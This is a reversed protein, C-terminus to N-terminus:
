KSECGGIGHSNLFRQVQENVGGKELSKALRVVKLGELSRARSLAVYVMEREFSNYLDVIVRNLTMGQSKHVTIAWAALLPIQTRGLLSYPKESGLESLQCHAYIPQIHGNQFEVVPWQTVNNKAIFNKVQEEILIERASQPREQALRFEADSGRRKSPKRPSNPAKPPFVKHDAHTEFGIIKGQSGNVLGTNFDLNVLLIIQMGIKLRIQEEFRHDSLAKLPGDKLSPHKPEGKRQLEPEDKNKWSFYDSCIYAKPSTQLGNFNRLNINDVERRTPLLQVAGAPDEKKALLLDRDQASLPKGYRCSQLIDIFRKDSQRHIHRLEFCTFKCDRWADSSFAWKEEDRYVTNCRPCTLPRGDQLKHGPLDDGGCYLCYKFPMVPPLQCFDGTVVIQVGGFPFSSGHRSRRVEGKEPKWGARAQRMMKDLRVLVDREVMSIEDIVLVDTACLRKRVSKAFTRKLFDALPEKFLDPYWGAYAYTTMGGVNLAAIGSPAIIDVHKGQAELKQVFSKLVTSKGTGASGTYFVNDGSVIRDVIYAQEPHLPPEPEFATQRVPAAHPIIDMPPPSSRAQSSPTPQSFPPIQSSRPPLTGPPPKARCQWCRWGNPVQRSALGVCAKHFTLVPCQQNACIVSGDDRAVEKKCSCKGGMSLSPKSEVVGQGATTVIGHIKAEHENKVKVEQKVQPRVVPDRPNLAGSWLGLIKFRVATNRANEKERSVLVQPLPQLTWDVDNRLNECAQKFLFRLKQVLERIEVGPLQNANAWARGVFRMFEKRDLNGYAKPRTEADRSAKISPEAIWLKAAEKSAFSAQDKLPYNKTQQNAETKSEYVGPFWGVKVAHWQKEAAPAPSSSQMQSSPPAFYAPQPMMPSFNPPTPLVAYHGVQVAPNYGNSWPYSNLRSSDAFGAYSANTDLAVGPLHAAFPRQEIKLRSLRLREPTGSHRMAQNCVLLWRLRRLMPTASLHWLM